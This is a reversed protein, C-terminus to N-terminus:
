LSAAGRLQDATAQRMALLCKVTVAVQGHFHNSDLKSIEGDAAMACLYQPVPLYGITLVGIPRSATSEDGTLLWRRDLPALLSRCEQLGCLRDLRVAYLREFIGCDEGHQPARGHQDVFQQIEEFWAIIREV